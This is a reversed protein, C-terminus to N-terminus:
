IMINNCLNCGRCLTVRDSFISKITEITNPTGEAKGSHFVIERPAITILASILLDEYNIESEILEIIFDELYSSNVVKHQGDYLMFSGNPKMVVNVLDTHSDQIDVFYKLLQIFEQYEKDMLFDDVAKDAAEQLEKIYDKLRFRIFGDVVIQNYNSLFEKLKALIKRKKRIKIITDSEGNDEIYKMANQFITSREAEGFYYYNERIIDLLIAKQWKCIILDSLVDAIYNKFLALTDEESKLRQDYGTVRCSLFTFKGAPSEEINLKMGRGELQKIDNALRGKVLDINNSAGISIYKAM